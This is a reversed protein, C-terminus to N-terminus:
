LVGSCSTQQGGHLALVNGLIFSPIDFTLKSVPQGL